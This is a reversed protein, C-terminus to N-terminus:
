TPQPLVDENLSFRIFGEGVDTACLSSLRLYLRWRRKGDECTEPKLIVHGRETGPPPTVRDGLLLEIGADALTKEVETANM